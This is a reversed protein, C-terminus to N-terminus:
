KPVPAGFPKFMSEPSGQILHRKSGQSAIQRSLQKQIFEDKLQNPVPSSENQQRANANSMKSAAGPTHQEKGMLTSVFKSGSLDQSVLENRNLIAGNIMWLDEENNKLYANPNLKSKGETILQLSQFISAAAKSNADIQNLQAARIVTNLHGETKNAIKDIEWQRKNDIKM